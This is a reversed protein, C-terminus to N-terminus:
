AAGDLWPSGLIGRQFSSSREGGAQRLRLLSAAQGAAPGLLLALFDSRRRATAYDSAYRAGASGIAVLLLVGPWCWTLGIPTHRAREEESLRGIWAAVM